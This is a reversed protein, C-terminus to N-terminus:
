FLFFLLHCFHYWVLWLSHDETLTRPLLTCFLKTSVPTLRSQLMWRGTNPAEAPLGQSGLILATLLNQSVFTILNTKWSRDVTPSGQQNLCYLIQRCHLLGPNLGQTPFIGQLLAHCGVWTNKGPSDGHVSSGPPSCDHPRLLKPMVSCNVVACM